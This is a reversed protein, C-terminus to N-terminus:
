VHSFRLQFSFYAFYCCISCVFLQPALRFSFFYTTNLGRQRHLSRRRTRDSWNRKEGSYRGGIGRLAVRRRAELGRLPGSRAAQRPTKYLSCSRRLANRRSVAYRGHLRSGGYGADCLFKRTSKNPYKTHTNCMVCEHLVRTVTSLGVVVLETSSVALEISSTALRRPRTLYSFM